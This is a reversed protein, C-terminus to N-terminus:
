ESLLLSSTRNLDAQVIMGDSCESCGPAKMEVGFSSALRHLRRRTRVDFEIYMGAAKRKRDIGLGLLMNGIEVSSYEKVEGRTRLLANIRGALENVQLNPTSQHCVGLLVEIVACTPELRQEFTVSESAGPRMIMGLDDAMAAVPDAEVTGSEASTGAVSWSQRVRAFNNFRFQMLKGLCERGIKARAAETMQMGSRPLILRVASANHVVEFAMGRYMARFCCMQAARGSGDLVSIGRYNSQALFHQIRKSMVPQNILVTPSFGEVIGRLAASRIDTLMLPHRTTCSCFRLFEVARAMDPGFLIMDPPNLILEPFHTYLSWRIVDRAEEANFGTVHQCLNQLSEVLERDTGYNIPSIPLQTARWVGPDVQPPRYCAGEYEIEHNITYSGNKYLLVKPEFNDESAVLEIFAGDALVQGATSIYNKGNNKGPM